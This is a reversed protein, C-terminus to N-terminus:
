EENATPRPAPDPDRPGATPSDAPEPAELGALYRAHAQERKKLSALFPDVPMGGQAEIMEAVIADDEAQWEALRTTTPPRGGPIHCFCGCGAVPRDHHCDCDCCHTLRYALEGRTIRRDSVRLETGCYPCRSRDEPEERFTESCGPCMPWGGVSMGTYISMTPALRVNHKYEYDRKAARRARWRSMRIIQYRGTQIDAPRLTTTPGPRWSVMVDFKEPDAWIIVGRRRLATDIVKAGTLDGPRSPYFGDM